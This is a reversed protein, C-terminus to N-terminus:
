QLSEWQEGSLQIRLYTLRHANSFRTGGHCVHYLLYKQKRRQVRTEKFRDGQHGDPSRGIENFTRRLADSANRQDAKKCAYKHEKIRVILSRDTEGVWKNDTGKVPYHLCWRYSTDVRCLRTNLLLGSLVLLCQLPSLPYIFQVTSQWTPVRAERVCVGGQGGRSMAVLHVCLM